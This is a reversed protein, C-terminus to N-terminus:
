LATSSIARSTTTSHEISAYRQAPDRRMAKLLIADLDGRVQRAIPAPALASPVTIEDALLMAETLARGERAARYPSVGAVLEHLIVGLAYIDTATTIIGGSVQEPAAYRLTMVRGGLRTLDQAVAAAKEDDLLKAIGFDLLKM